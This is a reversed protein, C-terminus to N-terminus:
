ARAGESPAAAGERRNAAYTKRPPARGMSAPVSTTANAARLPSHVSRVHVNVNARAGWYWLM